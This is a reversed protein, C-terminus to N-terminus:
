GAGPPTEYAFEGSPMEFPPATASVYVLQDPGPNHIAHEAGPSIFVLTGAEVDQEEGAVIMRGRRSVIVYVQECDAHTHLSQQSGPRGEVLTIAMRQSGFQGPALLLHSVQGAGRRNKPSDGLTQTHM